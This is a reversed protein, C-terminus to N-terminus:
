RERPQGERVTLRGPCRIRRGSSSIETRRRRRIQAMRCSRRRSTGGATHPDRTPPVSRETPRAPAATQGSAPGAIAILGAVLSLRICRPTTVSDSRKEIGRALAERITPGTEASPAVDIAWSESAYLAYRDIYNNKMSSSLRLSWFEWSRKPGPVRRIAFSCRVHRQDRWRQGGGEQRVQATRRRWGSQGLGPARDCCSGSSYLHSRVAM